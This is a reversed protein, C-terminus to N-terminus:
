RRSEVGMPPTLGPDGSPAATEDFRSWGARRWEDRRTTMDVAGAAILIDRAQAAHTADGARVTVLVGGRRVGEAYFHAEEEPVGLSSLIGLLSGGLAGLAAGTAISTLVPMAAGAMVLPGIGPIALAGVGVLLGALGGVVGGGVFGADVNRDLPGEGRVPANRADGERLVVGIDDRAFSRNELENVAREADEYRDFLAIVNTNEVTMNQM